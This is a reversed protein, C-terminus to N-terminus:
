KMWEPKEKNFPRVKYKQEHHRLIKEANRPDKKYADILEEPINSSFPCSSICIGCDTGLVRWKKYCEEQIIQWRMIDAIETQDQSSIAKAPCTRACKGCIKCFETIKFDSPKDLILPMNTTVAGLRVRSGFQETVLIGHRGIDGLGANKAVLPLVLLYNGDMHNRADYGLSKIYYTLMMGIIAAEVYGKVVVLAEPLQPATDIADKDMEVAFVITNTHKPEVIEGFTADDRGRHNYYYSEDCGTIGYLVSGYYGALGKIRKTFLEPTGACITNSLAPGTALHKIDGLFDFASTIMPSNLPDYTATGEACLGPMKRIEDDIKRREERTRYYDEYAETGPKRAMRSFMVDREDIRM